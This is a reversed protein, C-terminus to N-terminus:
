KQAFKGKRLNQSMNFITDKSILHLHFFVELLSSLPDTIRHIAM